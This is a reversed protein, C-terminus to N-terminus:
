RLLVLKCSHGVKEDKDTSAIRRELGICSSHTLSPMYSRSKTESPFCVVLSNRFSSRHHSAFNHYPHLLQSQKPLPPLNQKSHIQSPSFNKESNLGAQAIGKRTTSAQKDPLLLTNAFLIETLDRLVFIQSLELRLSLDDIVALKHDELQSM